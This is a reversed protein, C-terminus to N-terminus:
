NTTQITTSTATWIAASETHGAAKTDAPTTAYTFNAGSTADGDVSDSKMGSSTHHVAATMRTHTRGADSRTAPVPRRPPSVASVLDVANSAHTATNGAHQIAQFFTARRRISTLTRAAQEHATTASMATRLQITTRSNTGNGVSNGMVSM